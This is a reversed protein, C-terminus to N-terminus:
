GRRPTDLLLPTRCLRPPTELRALALARRMGKHMAIQRRTAALRDVGPHAAPPTRASPRVPGTSGHRPRRAPPEPAAFAAPPPRLRRAHGTETLAPQIAALSAKGRKIRTKYKLSITINRGGVCFQLVRPM